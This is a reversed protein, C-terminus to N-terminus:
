AKSNATKAYKRNFREIRGASDVLKHKGTYHPHCNACIEVSFNLRTSRTQYTAGCACAVTSNRYNPHIGSKM